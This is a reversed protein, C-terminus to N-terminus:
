SAVRVRVRVQMPAFLSPCAGLVLFLPVGAQGTQLRAFCPPDSPPSAPPFLSCGAGVRWACEGGGLGYTRTVTRHALSDQPLAALLEVRHRLRAYTSGDTLRAQVDAVLPASNAAIQRLLGEAWRYHSPRNRNALRASLLHSTIYHLYGTPPVNPTISGGGGRM